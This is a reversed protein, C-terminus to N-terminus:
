YKGTRFLKNLHCVAGITKRIDTSAVDAAIKERDRPFQDKHLLAKFDEKTIPDKYYFVSFGAAQWPATSRFRAWFRYIFNIL